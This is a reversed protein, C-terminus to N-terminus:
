DDDRDYGRRRDSLRIRSMRILVTLLFSLRALIIAQSSTLVSLLAGVAVM